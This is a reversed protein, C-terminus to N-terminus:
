IPEGREAQENVGVVGRVADLKQDLVPFKIVVQALEVKMRAAQVIPKGYTKIGWELIKPEDRASIQALEDGKGQELIMKSTVPERVNEQM